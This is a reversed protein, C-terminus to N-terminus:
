VFPEISFELCSCPLSLEFQSLVEPHLIGFTGIKAGDYLIEACREPFYSADSFKSNQQTSIRNNSDFTPHFQTKEGDVPRISYDISKRAPDTVLLQM